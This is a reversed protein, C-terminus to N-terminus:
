LLPIHINITDIEILFDVMKFNGIVSWGYQEYKSIQLM